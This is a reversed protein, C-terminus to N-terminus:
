KQTNTSILVSQVNPCLPDFEDMMECWLGRNDELLSLPYETKSIKHMAQYWAKFAHLRDFEESLAQELTVQNDM